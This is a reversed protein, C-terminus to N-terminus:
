HRQAARFEPCWTTNQAPQGNPEPQCTYPCFLSNFVWPTSDPGFNRVVSKDQTIGYGAVALKGTSRFRATQETLFHRNDAYWSNSLLFDNWKMGDFPRAGDDRVAQWVPTGSRLGHAAAFGPDVRDGLHAKWLQVLSFETALFRQDSRLWPLVYDVYQQAESPAAVHPHIDVGALSRTGATFSMWRRTQATRSAPKHLATLAGMYLQTRCRSGFRRQRYDAAHLALAEYFANIRPSGSDAKRTEFFPENGIVVIDVTNMTAALVKDLRALATRMAPTGPVPIPAGSYQFKLNLVTGYGHAAATLLKAPGPQSAVSGHDAEAMQYFGRVWTGSVAALQTFSIRDLDQNVNAALAGTAPPATVRGPSGSPSPSPSP